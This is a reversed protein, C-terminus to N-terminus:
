PANKVRYDHFNNKVIYILEDVYFEETHKAKQMRQTPPVGASIM